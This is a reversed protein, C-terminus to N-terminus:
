GYTEQEKDSTMKRLVPTCYFQCNNGNQFNSSSFDDMSRGVALDGQCQNQAGAKDSM